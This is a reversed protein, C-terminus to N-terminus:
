EPLTDRDPEAALWTGCEITLSAAPVHWFPRTWSYPADQDDDFPGGPESANLRGSAHNPHFVKGIGITTYGRSRFWQPLSTANTDPSERWYSYLDFFRTVDPRRGTLLATRAPSCSPQSTYHRRFHISESALSALSPTLALSPASPLTLDDALLLLFDRAAPWRAASAM